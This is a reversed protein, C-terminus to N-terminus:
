CPPRRQHLAALVKGPTFPLERLRIGLADFVANSIAPISPHLPGEGAEKAGYPGGPDITEVIQAFLEPTELSTPIRYDLLNPGQHLGREDYLQAEMVAEAYGMYVSGEIQGEVLVPNLARGCDHAAWVRTVRVIGTEPDVEVEAVHATTSYAPSAGITGGRYDGGVKRTRYGGHEVLSGGAAEALQLAQQVPVQVGPAEKQFFFGLAVGVADPAVKWHAAVADTMRHRLKRGAEQAAIGAM